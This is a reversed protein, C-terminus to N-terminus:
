SQPPQTPLSWSEIILVVRAEPREVEVKQPLLLGQIEQYATYRIQWGDEALALLHGDKRWLFNEARASKPKGLVWSSFGDVPFAYGTVTELLVGPQDARREEKQTRLVAGLRTVDLRAVVEGMPGMLFITDGDVTHVWHIPASFQRQATQVQLKGSLTFSSIAELRALEPYLKKQQRTQLIACSCLLTILCLSVINHSSLAIWRKKYFKM